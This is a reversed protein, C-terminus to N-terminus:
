RGGSAAIERLYLRLAGIGSVAPAGAARRRALWALFTQREQPERLEAAAPLVATSM